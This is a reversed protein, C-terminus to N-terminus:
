RQSGVLWSDASGSDIGLTWMVTLNQGQGQYTSEEFQEKHEFGSKIGLSNSMTSPWQFAQLSM